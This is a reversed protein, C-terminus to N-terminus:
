TGRHRTATTVDSQWISHPYPFISTTTTPWQEPNRRSRRQARQQKSRTSAAPCVPLISPHILAFPIKLNLSRWGLFSCEVLLRAGGGILPLCAPLASWTHSISAARSFLPHSGAFPWGRDRDRVIHSMRLRRTYEALLTSQEYREQRNAPYFTATCSRLPLPRDHDDDHDDDDREVRGSPLHPHAAIRHSAIRIM